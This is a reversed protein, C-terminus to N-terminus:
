PPRSVASAAVHFVPNRNLRTRSKEYGGAPCKISEWGRRQAKAAWKHDEDPQGARDCDEASRIRNTEIPSKHRISNSISQGTQNDFAQPLSQMVDPLEFGSRLEETEKWLATRAYNITCGVQV